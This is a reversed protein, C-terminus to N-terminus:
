RKRTVGVARLKSVPPVGNECALVVAKEGLEAREVRRTVDRFTPVGYAVYLARKIYASSKLAACTADGEDYPHPNCEAEVITVEGFKSVVAADPCHGSVSIGIQKGSIKEVMRLMREGLVVGTYHSDILAALDACALTHRMVMPDSVGCTCFTTLYCSNATLDVVGVSPVWIEGVARVGARKLWYLDEYGEVDIVRLYGAECLDNLMGSLGAIGTCMAIHKATLYGLRAVTQLVELREAIRTCTEIDQKTPRGRRGISEIIPRPDLLSTDNIRKV